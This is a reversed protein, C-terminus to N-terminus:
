QRAKMWIEELAGPQLMKAIWVVQGVHNANHHSVHLLLQAFTTEKGTRDTTQTLQAPDLGNLIGACAGVSAEWQSQVERKTLGGRVAFEADRDRGIDRGGIVQELYYRNSWSLHVVINAVANADGNPRWWIQEDTLVDLCAALQRPFDTLLRLTVIHLVTSELSHAM